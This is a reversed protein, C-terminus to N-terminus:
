RNEKKTLQEAPKRRHELRAATDKRVRTILLLVTSRKMAIFAAFFGAREQHVLERM